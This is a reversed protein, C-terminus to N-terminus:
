ANYVGDKMAKILSNYRMILKVSELCYRLLIEFYGDKGLQNAITYLPVNYRDWWYVKVVPETIKVGEAMNLTDVLNKTAGKYYVGTAEYMKLQKLHKNM